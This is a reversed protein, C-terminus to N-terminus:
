AIDLSKKRTKDNQYFFIFYFVRYATFRVADTFWLPMAARGRGNARARCVTNERQRKKMGEM